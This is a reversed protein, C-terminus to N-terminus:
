CNPRVRVLGWGFITDWGPAGLDRTMRRLIDSLTKPDPLVGNALQLAVASTIFPAAFSTGSQLGGGERTATWLGVGPAAFDIYDGQNAYRYIALRQDIATVALVEPYAAPFAPKAKAGGNGAAAVIVLGRKSAREILMSFVRNPSGALSVNVVQVNKGALWDLAKLMSVLSAKIAGDKGQHFINAAYLTAAPLLGKWAGSKTVGGGVLLAAVATGHDSRGPKGGKVLFSRRAIRQGKLAPHNNDVITDIMGIRVGDGCQAPVEGWGFVRRGYDGGRAAGPVFRLNAGIVLGPFKAGIAQLAQEVTVGPPTRLRVVTLGMTELTVRELVTYGDSQLAGLLKGSPAVVVVEGPVRTDELRLTPNRLTRPPTDPTLPPRAVGGGSGVKKEIVGIVRGKDDYQLIRTESQALAAGDFGLGLLITALIPVIRM